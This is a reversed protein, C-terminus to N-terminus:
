LWFGPIQSFVPRPRSVEDRRGQDLFKAVIILITRLQIFTISQYVRLRGQISCSLYMFLPTNMSQVSILKVLYATPRRYSLTPFNLGLITNYLSSLGSASAILATVIASRFNRRSRKITIPVLRFTGRTHEITRTIHLHSPIVATPNGNSDTYTIRRGSLFKIAEEFEHQTFFALFDCINDFHWSPIAAERWPHLSSHCEM